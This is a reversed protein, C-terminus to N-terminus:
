QTRWGVLIRKCLRTASQVPRRAYPSIEGFPTESAQASNLPGSASQTRAVALEGPGIVFGGNVNITHYPKALKRNCPALTEPPM